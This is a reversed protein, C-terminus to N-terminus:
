RKVAHFTYMRGPTKLRNYQSQVIKTAFPFRSALVGVIRLKEKLKANFFADLEDPKKVLPFTNIVTEWPKLVREIKLGGNKMSELYESLRYANETGTLQHIPHKQLFIRKQEANDVVHERCAIFQGGPKLIRFFEKMSATLDPIHHLVQRAYVIDVSNDPLPISDAYADITVIPLGQSVREIAGRGVLDSADPELAYVKAAGCKAFAYSAIGTGAGIDIITLGSVSGGLLRLVESFEGTKSFREASELVDSGFYADHVLEACSPDGRLQLIAEDISLM